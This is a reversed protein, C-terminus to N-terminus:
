GPFFLFCSSLLACVLTEQIGHLSHWECQMLEVPQLLHHSIYNKSPCTTVVFSVSTRKILFSIPQQASLESYRGSGGFPLNLRMSLDIFKSVPRIEAKTQVNLSNWLHLVFFVRKRTRPPHTVKLFWEFTDTVKIVNEELLVYNYLRFGAM